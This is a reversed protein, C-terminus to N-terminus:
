QRELESKIAAETVQAPVAGPLIKRGVFVAPTGRVGLEQARQMDSQIEQLIAGETMCEAVTARDAGANEAYGLLLNQANANGSWVQQNAFVESKYADFGEAGEERLVCAGIQHAPLAQKHFSLPFDKVIYQIKGEEIMRSLLEKNQDYFSKCYPCQMDTFEVVAVPGDGLVADEHTDWDPQTLFEGYGFGAVDNKIRYIDGKQELMQAFQQPFPMGTSTTIADLGKGFFVAPIAQIDFQEILQRGNESGPTVGQVMLAPTIGAQLQKVIAETNCTECAPDSLITVPLPRGPVRMWTTDGDVVMGNGNGEQVAFAEPLDDVAMYLRGGHRLSTGNQSLEVQATSDFLLSGIGVGMGLVALALFGIHKADLTHKTQKKM